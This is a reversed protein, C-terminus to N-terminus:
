RGASPEPQCRGSATSGPSCATLPCTIVSLMTAMGPAIMGAGKAMGGVTVGGRAAVAEKSRTDTTMIARAADAGGDAALAAVALDVGKMLAAMDLRVGILGTSCVAVDIPALRLLTAVREATHHTDAFGDPGTCANAGGSNLVVARLANWRLVQRSWRVPAAVVKNTTFVGAAANEPGDNVVLAVDPDGSAKLGATVGAARFGAPATVSM